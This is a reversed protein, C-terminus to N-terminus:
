FLSALSKINLDKCTFGYIFMKIKVKFTNIKKFEYIDLSVNFKMKFSPTNYNGVEVAVEFISM